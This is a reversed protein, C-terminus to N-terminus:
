KDIRTQSEWELTADVYIINMNGYYPIVEIGTAYYKGGEGSIFDGPSKVRHILNPLRGDELRMFEMISDALDQFDESCGLLGPYSDLWSLNTGVTCDAPNYLYYLGDQLIYILVHGDAPTRVQIYGLEDYDDMLLYHMLNSLTVCQGSNYELVQWASHYYNLKGHTNQLIQGRGRDWFTIGSRYMYNVADPLTTITQAAKAYDKDDILSDIQAHSLKPEGLGVPFTLGIYAFEEAGHDNDVLGGVEFGTLPQASFPFAATLNQCLTELNENRLCDAGPSFVWGATPQFVDFAYYTGDKEIYALNYSETSSFIKMSGVTDYDRNLLQMFCSCAAFPGPFREAAEMYALADSVTNIRDAAIDLDGAQYLQVIEESSLTSSGLEPCYLELRKEVDMSVDMCRPSSDYYPAATLLNEVLANIDENKLCNNAARYIWDFHPNNIDQSFPTFPNFAYYMDGTELYPVFFHNEFGDSDGVMHIIGCSDYDGDLLKVFLEAVLKPQFYPQGQEIYYFADLVHTITEAAQEENMRARIKSVEERGLVPKGFESYHMNLLTEYDRGVRANWFETGADPCASALRESLALIDADYSCNNEQLYIWNDGAHFPDFAYYLGDQFVYVLEYWQDDYNLALINVYDYDGQLLQSFVACASKPDRFKGAGTMYFLADGVNTIADSAAALNNSKALKVSEEIGLVPTGLADDYSIGDITIINHPVAPAETPPITEETASVSQVSVETPTPSPASNQTPIPEQTSAGCGTLLMACSLILSFLFNPQRM